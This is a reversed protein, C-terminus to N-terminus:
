CLKFGGASITAGTAYRLAGYGQIVILMFSMAFEDLKPVKTSEASSVLINTSPADM